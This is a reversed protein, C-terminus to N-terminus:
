GDNKEREALMASAYAYRAETRTRTAREFGHDMKYAMFKRVDRESAHVAIYDRLSMGTNGGSVYHKPFAPGGDPKDTM